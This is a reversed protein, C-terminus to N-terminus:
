LDRSWYEEKESEAKTLWKSHGDVWLFNSGGSHRDSVRYGPLSPLAKIAPMILRTEAGDAISDAAYITNSTNKVQIIKIAPRTADGFALGVGNNDWGGYNMGYSVNDDNFIFDEDSPCHFVQENKIHDNLQVYWSISPDVNTGAVPYIWDNWDQAYLMVALGMQKQNGTCKITKAKERAQNLAPLLMGALIAIIAIVVLLEILTFKKNKQM